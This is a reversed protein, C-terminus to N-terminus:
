PVLKVVRSGFETVWYCNYQSEPRCIRAIGIARYEGNLMNDRHEPSTRWQDFTSRADENGAALNEGRWTDDPYKFDDLRQFPDRTLHDVHDFYEYSPMDGAMWTATKTLRRDMKLRKLGHSRRFKNILRLQQREFKSISVAHSSVPVAALWLMAAILVGAGLAVLSWASRDSRLNWHRAFMSVLSESPVKEM